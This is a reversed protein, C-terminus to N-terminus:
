RPGYFVTVSRSYDASQGIEIRGMLTAPSHGSPMEPDVGAKGLNGLSIVVGV